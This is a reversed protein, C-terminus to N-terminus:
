LRDPIVNMSHCFLTVDPGDVLYPKQRLCAGDISIILAREVPLSFYLQREIDLTQTWTDKCKKHNQAHIKHETLVLRQHARESNFPYRSVETNVISSEGTDKSSLVSALHVLGDDFVCVSRKNHHTCSESRGLQRQPVTKQPAGTVITSPHTDHQPSAWM